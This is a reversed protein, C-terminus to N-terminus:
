FLCFCKKKKSKSILDLNLKGNACYIINDIIEGIMNTNKLTILSYIINLNGSKCFINNEDVVFDEILNIVLQKKEPGKKDLEKIEEVEQIIFNILDFTSITNIDIKKDIIKLEINNKNM